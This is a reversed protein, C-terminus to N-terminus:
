YIFFPYLQLVLNAQGKIILFGFILIGVIWLKGYNYDMLIIILKVKIVYLYVCICQKKINYNIIKAKKGKMEFDPSELLVEPITNINFKWSFM